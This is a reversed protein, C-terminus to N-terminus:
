TDGYRRAAREHLNEWLMVGAYDSVEHLRLHMSSSHMHGTGFPAVPLKRGDVKPGPM